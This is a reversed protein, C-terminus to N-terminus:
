VWPAPEGAHLRALDDTFCAILTAQNANRDVHDLAQLCRDACDAARAPVFTDDNLIRDVSSQLEEDAHSPAGVFSRASQRYLDATFRIARRLRDRRAAADRGAADVFPTLLAALKAPQLPPTSLLSYWRRRFEWIEDNSLELATAISGDAFRALRAADDPTDVLNQSELVRAVLSEDLPRFRIVQCRSRITPLQRDASTGVLIILSDAPPEELTKLLCNASEIGLDDADDIIAIKRHGLYPKLAIDHCLGSTARHQDSGIFLELPITSKGAPKAVHFLDPHSGARWQVCSDCDGCPDLPRTTAYRCLLSQALRNAFTRKGIGAPGVFLMASALRRRDLGRRFWAVVDDHGHVDLWSM